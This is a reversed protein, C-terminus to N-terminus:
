LLKQVMSGSEHPGLDTVIGYDKPATHKKANLIRLEFTSIRSDPDM